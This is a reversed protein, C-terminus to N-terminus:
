AGGLIRQEHFYAMYSESGVTFLAALTGDALRWAALASFDGPAPSNPILRNLLLSVTDAAIDAPAGYRATQRELEADYAGGPVAAYALVPLNERFVYYVNEAKLYFFTYGNYEERNYEGASVGEVAIMGDATTDWTIGNRFSFATDAAACSYLLAIALTLGLLRRVHKM